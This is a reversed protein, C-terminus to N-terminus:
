WLKTLIREQMERMHAFDKESADEYGALHLLGHVIYLGLERNLDQGYEEAQRAATDASILIEGHDFTIVDTPTPDNLFEGHVGAIEKDNVITIEIEELNGLPAGEDCMDKQCSSFAARALATLRPVDVGQWAHPDFVEVVPADQAGKSIQSM